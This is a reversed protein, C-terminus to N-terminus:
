LIVQDFEQITELVPAGGSSPGFALECSDDIDGVVAECTQYQISTDVLIKTAISLQLSTTPREGRDLVQNIKIVIM